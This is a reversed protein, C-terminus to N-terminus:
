IFMMQKFSQRMQLMVSQRKTTTLKFFNDISVKNQQSQLLHSSVIRELCEARIGGSVM